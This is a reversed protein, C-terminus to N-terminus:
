SRSIYNYFNIDVCGCVWARMNAHIHVFMCLMCIIICLYVFMHVHAHVCVNVCARVRACVCVCVCVCVCYLASSNQAMRETSCSHCEEQRPWPTINSMHLILGPSMPSDLDQPFRSLIFFYLEWIQFVVKLLEM